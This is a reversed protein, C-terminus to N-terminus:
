SEPRLGKLNHYLLANIAKNDNNIPGILNDM